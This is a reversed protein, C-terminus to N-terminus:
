AQREIPCTMCHSGGRARSLEASPLSIITNKLTLPDCDGARWEKLFREAAIVRYGAERFAQATHINRDYALAVGPQIAFLNCGDTWQEREQHPSEANGGFVYRINTNIEADFFSKVSAYEAKAGDIRYVVVSSNKGDYIIPKHAVILDEDIMTFLTDLHMFSREAPINVQVVNKFLKKKFIIEKLSEIAYDTTRESNGILLYDENIVMVDGGELSVQEGKKSPPFKNIDNLNILRGEKKAKSFIPHYWAIMRALLNERERANKNAKTVLFHDKLTVGLDRTFIFNPIPPFLYFDMKDFYGTILVEALEFNPIEILIDFYSDPLDEFDVIRRIFQSRESNSISELSEAVLDTMELVGEKGVFAELVQRFIDHEEKMKPLYVIDDFLLVEAMGPSVRAIGDDPRHILVRKLKHIESNVFIDSKM